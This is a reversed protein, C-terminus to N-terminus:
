EEHLEPDDVNLVKLQPLARRLGDIGAASIGWTNFWVARLNKMGKLHELGADTISPEVTYGLSLFELKQINAVHKLGTDTIGNSALSLRKLNKLGAIHVLGADTVSTDVISLSRLRPLGALHGLGTDGIHTCDLNLTELNNLGSLHALGGDTVASYSLEVRKLAPMFKLLQIERDSFDDRYQTSIFTAEYFPKRWRNTEWEEDRGDIKTPSKGLWIPGHYDSEIYAGREKLAEKAMQQRYIPLGFGLGVAGVLVVFVAWGMWLPRPLRISFRRPALTTSDTTVM